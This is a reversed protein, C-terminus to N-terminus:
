LGDQSHVYVFDVVGDTPLEDFEVQITISPRWGILIVEGADAWGFGLSSDHTRQSHCISVKCFIGTTLTAAGKIIAIARGRQLLVDCVVLDM